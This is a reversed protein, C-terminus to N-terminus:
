AFSLEPPREKRELSPLVWDADEFADNRTYISPTVAVRLGAAKASRLGNESDEVAVAEGPGFGLRQLALLFVDPAPKKAGVEDGAAIVEFVEEAPCGWVAQSLADVNPRNTTTAIALRIGAARAEDIWAAVGPRLPVAGSSILCCYLATKEAHLRAIEDDSPAGAGIDERHRRMREKGGTTKLLRTYDEISWRWDIGANAFTENFAKRHAEETEALTGDVDFIIAKLTM